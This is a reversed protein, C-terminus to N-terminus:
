APGDSKVIVNYRRRDQGQRGAPAANCRASGSAGRTGDRDYITVPGLYGLERLMKLIRDVSQFARPQGRRNGELYAYYGRLGTINIFLFYDFSLTFAGSAPRTPRVIVYAGALREGEGLFTSIGAKEFGTRPKRPRAV